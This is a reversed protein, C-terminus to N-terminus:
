IPERRFPNVASPVGNRDYLNFKQVVTTGDVAYIIMRNADAGATVIEWKGLQIDRLTQISAPIASLTGVATDLNTNITSLTGVATGLDTAVGELDVVIDDTYDEPRMFKCAYTPNGGTAIVYVIGRSANFAPTFKYAGGGIESIAPPTLGAGLDDTYSLFTPTLGALPLGTTADFVFFVEIKPSAM